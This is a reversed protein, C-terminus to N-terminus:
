VNCFGSSKLAENIAKGQAESTTVDKYTFRQSALWDLKATDGNLSSCQNRAADIAKDKYRVVDPAAKALTDLLQQREAGSPKPPIGAAKEAAAHQEKSVESASASAKPAPKNAAEDDSSNSCATLTLLAAAAITAATTTRTNM